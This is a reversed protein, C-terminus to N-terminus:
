SRGALNEEAQTPRYYKAKLMMPPMSGGERLKRIGLRAVHTAQGEALESPGERFPARQRAAQTGLFVDRYAELGSGFNLAGAPIRQAVQRPEGLLVGTQDQWAGNQWRFVEGYLFRRRADLLPCIAECEYQAADVNQAMVELSPVGVAQWGLVYALTKACTVGVRLGTFSGPGESVAVADIERKRVAARRLLEDVAVMIDRGRRPGEELRVEGLVQDRRCLAVSGRTGSTEIGIVLM